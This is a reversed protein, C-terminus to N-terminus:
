ISFVSFNEFNEFSNEVVSRNDVRHEFGRGISIVPVPLPKVQKNRKTLYRLTAISQNTARSSDFQM